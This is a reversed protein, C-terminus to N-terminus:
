EASVLIRQKRSKIVVVYIKALSDCNNGTDTSEPIDAKVPVGCAEESENM